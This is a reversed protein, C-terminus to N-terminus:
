PSRSLELRLSGERVSLDHLTADNEGLESLAIRLEGTSPDLFPLNEAPGIWGLLRLAAGVPIPIRGARVREVRLAVGNGAVRPSLVLELGTPQGRIRSPLGVADEPITIRADLALRDDELRFRAQPREGEVGEVGLSDSMVEAMATALVQNLESEDLEIVVREGAELRELDAEFSEQIEAARASDAPVMTWETDAPAIITPLMFWAVAALALPIGILAVVTVGVCGLCGFCGKGKGTSRDPPSTDRDHPATDRASQPESGVTAYETGTQNRPDEDM